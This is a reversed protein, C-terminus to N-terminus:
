VRVRSGLNPSKRAQVRSVPRNMNFSDNPQCMTLLLTFEGITYELMSNHRLNGKGGIRAQM